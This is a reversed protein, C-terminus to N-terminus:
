RRTLQIGRVSELVNTATTSSKAELVIGDDALEDASLCLATSLEKNIADQLLEALVFGNRLRVWFLKATASANHLAILVPETEKNM